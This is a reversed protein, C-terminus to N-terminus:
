TRAGFIATGVRVLTAGEEIALEFDASMGMSLEELVDRGIDEALARLERFCGRSVDDDGPPPMTMLGRVRVNDLTSAHEVLPRVDEPSCGSKSAEGSVNVQLLVNVPAEARKNIETLLRESDVGHVLAPKARLLLKVKNRQLHGIFHWRILEHSTLEAAKDALEQVYNEGFDVCDAELAEVILSTPKRKSVAVLHVRRTLTPDRRAKAAEIRDRLQELRARINDM